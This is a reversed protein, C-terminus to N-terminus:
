FTSDLPQKRTDRIDVNELIVSSKHVVDVENLDLFITEGLNSM